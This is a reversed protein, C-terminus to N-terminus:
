QLNLFWRASVPAAACKARLNRAAATNLKPSISCTCNSDFDAAVALNNGDAVVLAVPAAQCCVPCRQGARQDRQFCGLGTLHGQAFAAAWFMRCFAVGDNSQKAMTISEGQADNSDSGQFRPLVGVKRGDETIVNCSTIKRTPHVFDPASRRKECGGTPHSRRM